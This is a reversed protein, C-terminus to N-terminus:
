RQAHLAEVFDQLLMVLLQRVCGAHLKVHRVEVLLRPDLHDEAGDRRQWRGENERVM